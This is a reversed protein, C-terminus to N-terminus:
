PNRSVNYLVQLAIGAGGVIVTSGIGTAISTVKSLIETTQLKTVEETWMKESLKAEERFENIAEMVTKHHATCTSFYRVITDLFSTLEAVVLEELRKYVIASECVYNAMEQCAIVYMRVKSGVRYYRVKLDEDKGLEIQCRQLNEIILRFIQIVEPVVRRICFRLDGEEM